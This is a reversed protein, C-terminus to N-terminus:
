TLMQVIGPAFLIILMANFLIDTVAFLAIRGPESGTLMYLAAIVMNYALVGALAAPIIASSLFSTVAALCLMGALPVFFRYDLSESLFLGLMLSLVGVFLGAGFGYSLTAIISVFVALEFGLQIRLFRYPVLSAAGIVELLLSVTLTRAVFFLGILSFIALSLATLNWTKM